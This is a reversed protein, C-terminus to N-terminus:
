STEKKQTSQQVRPEVVIASIIVLAALEQGFVLITEEPYLYTSLKM